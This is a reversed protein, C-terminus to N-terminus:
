IHILSLVLVLATARGLQDDPVIAAIHSNVTGWLLGVAAAGITRAALAGGYTPSAATLAAALGFVLMGATIISRAEFRRTLHSLPLTVIVVVAAWASM